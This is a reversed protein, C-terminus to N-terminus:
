RLNDSGLMHQVKGTDVYTYHFQFFAADGDKTMSLPLEEARLRITSGVHLNRARYVRSIVQERNFGRIMKTPTFEKRVLEWIKSPVLRINMLTVEDAKAKMNDVVDEITNVLGSEATSTTTADTHTQLAFLICTFVNGLIMGLYKLRFSMSM